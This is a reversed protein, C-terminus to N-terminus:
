GASQHHDQHAAPAGCHRCFRAWTEVQGGCSPCSASATPPTVVTAEVESLTSGCFRCFRAHESIESGCSGCRRSSESPEGRTGTAGTVTAAPVQVPDAPAGQEAWLAGPAPEFASAPGAGTGPRGNARPAGADIEDPDAQVGGPRLRGENARAVEGNPTARPQAV